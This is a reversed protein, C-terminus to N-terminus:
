GAPEGAPQPTHSQNRGPHASSFTTTDNINDPTNMPGGSRPADDNTSDPTPRPKTRTHHEPHQRSIPLPNGDEGIPRTKIITTAACMRQNREMVLIHQEEPDM